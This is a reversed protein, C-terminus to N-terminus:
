KSEGEPLAPKEQWHTVFGDPKTHPYFLGDKDSLCVQWYRHTKEGQKCIGIGYGRETMVQVAEGATPLREGVPIWEQFGLASLADLLLARAAKPAETMCESEDRRKCLIPRTIYIKASYSNSIVEDPSVIIEMGPVWLRKDVGEISERWEAKMTM